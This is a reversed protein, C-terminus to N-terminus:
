WAPASAPEAAPIDAGSPEAFAAEAVWAASRDEDPTAAPGANAPIEVHYYARFALPVPTLAHVSFETINLSNRLQEVFNVAAELSVVREFAPVGEASPYFVVHEM